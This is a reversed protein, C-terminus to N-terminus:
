RSHRWTNPQYRVGLGRVVPMPVVYGNVALVDGLWGTSSPREGIGDCRFIWREIPRPAAYANTFWLNGFDFDVGGRWPSALTGLNSPAANENYIDVVEGNQVEKSGRQVVPHMPNPTLAVAM